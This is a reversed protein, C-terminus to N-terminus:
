IEDYGSWLNRPCTRVRMARTMSLGGDSQAITWDLNKCKKGSLAHFLDWSPIIIGVKLVRAESTSGVTATPQMFRSSSPTHMAEKGLLLLWQKRKVRHTQASFCICMSQIAGSLLLDRPGLHLGLKVRHTQASFYYVHEPHVLFGAVLCVDIVCMGHRRVVRRDLPNNNKSVHMAIHM